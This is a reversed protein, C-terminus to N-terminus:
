IVVRNRGGDKAQYLLKDASEVFEEASSYAEKKWQSVGISVTLDIKHNDVVVEM